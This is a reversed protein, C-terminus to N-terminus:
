EPLFAFRYADGDKLVSGGSQGRFHAPFMITDTDAVADLIRRRTAMAVDPQEDAFFPL